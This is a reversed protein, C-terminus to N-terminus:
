AAALGALAARLQTIPLIVLMGPAEFRLRVPGQSVANSTGIM